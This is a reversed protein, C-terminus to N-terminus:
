SQTLKLVVPSRLGFGRSVKTLEDVILPATWYMCGVIWGLRAVGLVTRQQWVRSRTPLICELASSVITEVIVLAGQIWFFVTYRMPDLGTFGPSSADPFTSVHLFSSITFALTIKLTYALFSKEPLGFLTALARGPGTLINRLYQHWFGGWFGRLGRRWVVSPSGMASKWNQTGGWFNGVVGVGGLGVFLIAPVAQLLSFTAYQQAGLILIRVLQPPLHHLHYITLFSRLRRPFPENIPTSIQFYPDFHQYLSIADMILLCLGVRLVERVLFKVRSEPGQPPIDFKEKGQPVPSTQWGIYRLSCTLNVVWGVRRWFLVPYGERWILRGAGAGKTPVMEEKRGKGDACIITMMPGGDRIICFEERPNRFFLLELSWLSHFISLFGLGSQYTYINCALIPPLSSLYLHTHSFPTLLALHLLIHASLQTLLPTKLAEM